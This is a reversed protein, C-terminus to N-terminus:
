IKRTRLLFNLVNLFEFDLKKELVLFDFLVKNFNVLYDNSDNHVDIMKVVIDLHLKSVCLEKKKLANKRKREGLFLKSLEFSTPRKSPDVALCAKIVSNPMWDDKEFIISELSKPNKPNWYITQYTRTRYNCDMTQNEIKKFFNWVYDRNREDFIGRNYQLVYCNHIVSKRTLALYM